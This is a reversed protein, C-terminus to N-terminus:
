LENFATFAVFGEAPLGVERQVLLGVGLLLGKRARLTALSEAPAVCQVRMVPKVAPVPRVPALGAPPGAAPQGGEDLVLFDVAWLTGPLAPLVSPTGVPSGMSNIFM